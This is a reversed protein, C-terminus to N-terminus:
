KIDHVHHINKVLFLMINNETKFTKNTNTIIKNGDNKTVINAKEILFQQIPRKKKVNHDIYKKLKDHNCKTM